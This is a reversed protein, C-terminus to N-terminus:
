LLIANPIVRPKPIIINNNVLKFKTKSLLLFKMTFTLLNSKAIIVKKNRENVADEKKDILISLDNATIIQRTRNMIKEM